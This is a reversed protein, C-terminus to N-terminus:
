STPEGSAIIAIADELADCAIQQETDGLEAALAAGDRLAQLTAIIRAREAAAGDARARKLAPYTDSETERQRAAIMPAVARLATEMDGRDVYVNAGKALAQCLATVMEVTVLDNNGTVVFAKVEGSTDFTPKNTM